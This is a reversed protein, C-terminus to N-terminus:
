HTLNEFSSWITNGMVSRSGTKFLINGSRGKGLKTCKLKLASLCMQSFHNNACTSFSMRVTSKNCQPLKFMASLWCISWKGPFEVFRKLILQSLSDWLLSITPLWLAFCHSLKSSSQICHQQLVMFYFGLFFYCETTSQCSFCFCLYMFGLSQTNELSPFHHNSLNNLYSSTSFLKLWAKTM